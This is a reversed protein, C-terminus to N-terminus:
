KDLPASGADRPKNSQPRAAVERPTFQYSHEEPVHSPYEGLASAHTRTHHGCLTLVTGDVLYQSVARASCGDCRDNATLTTFMSDVISEMSFPNASEETAMATTLVDPM